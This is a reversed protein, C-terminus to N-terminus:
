MSTSQNEWFARMMMDEQADSGGEGRFAQDLTEQTVPGSSVQAILSDIADAEAMNDAMTSSDEGIRGHGAGNASVYSAPAGKRKAHSEARHQMMAQYKGMIDETSEGIATEGRDSMANKISMDNAVFDRYTDESSVAKYSRSQAATGQGKLRKIDEYAKTYIEIVKKEGIYIHNPTVLAPFGSIKKKQFAEVLKPNTLLKSDIKQVNIFIGMGRLPAKVKILFRLVEFTSVTLERPGNGIVFLKHEQGRLGKKPTAM